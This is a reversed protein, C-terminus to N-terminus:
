NVPQDGAGGRLFSRPEGDTVTVLVSAWAYETGDVTTRHRIYAQDDFEDDDAVGTVTVM